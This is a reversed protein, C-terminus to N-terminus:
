PVLSAFESIGIAGAEVLPLLGFGLAFPGLAVDAALPDGVAALLNGAALEDVFLSADYQPLTTALALAADALPLGTAIDTSVTGTLADVINAATVPVDGHAFTSIANILDLLNSPPDLPNTILTPTLGFTYAATLLPQLSSFDFGFSPSRLAEVFDTIGQQTGTVLATFLQSPNIDTPFLGFPTPADPPNQTDWGQTLSGYGLNVLIATDPELLDYLPQGIVPLVQLPELLPLGSAPILYYTTEAYTGLDIVNSLQSPDLYTAHEYAIGLVANLDSVVDLPYRPFDAFGDYEHTFIDTPYLDSPTAGSFTAGFSPISLGAFRELLGGDPNNPDGVLVFSVDSPSVGAAHLQSMELSAITSSQSYGFVEVHNGAAIQQSIANNLTAEGQTVSSDFPLTNVGTVPYLGEPTTLPLVTSAPLHLFLDDAADIYTTPPVPFGSPGLVLATDDGFAFAARLISTLGLLAGGASAM